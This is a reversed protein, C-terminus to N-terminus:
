QANSATPVAAAAAGNAVTKTASPTKGVQAPASKQQYVAVKQGPTLVHVGTSVVQMGPALGGVIVAENGDATAVQVPQSRVTGKDAEYVWVATAQGEQRLATTPLKLAAVGAHGLAEPAVYATSGLPPASAADIGVKVTFTRTVPDASAAVERVRGQLPEGGAWSRVAVAQGEKLRAVKDEPVAFVVDRPGDLAIRVVPAGSAVVQGPEADIGTVVGAGDAVLRTYGAQNGQASAQARAQELTARAAKLSAERRELEAGSIFNQEKLAAFRKFEAAALDHQTQAASVQARAAAAALQYDQPDLQALLQGAQVREGLAAPRQVIKGGVRFGLRSEVRARVEGAYEQAALLPEAGVTLLKVARVPEPPPAPPTCAALLGAGALLAVTRLAAASAFFLGQRPRSAFLTRM